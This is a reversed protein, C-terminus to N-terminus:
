TGAFAHAENELMTLAEELDLATAIDGLGLGLTVMDFALEPQIGVIVTKAGRLGVIQALERLTRTAFSNIVDLATADVIGGKSRYLGVNAALRDRLQVLDEANWASQISAILY